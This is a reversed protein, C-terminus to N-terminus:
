PSEGEPPPPTPPVDTVQPPQSPANEPTPPPSRGGVPPVPAGSPPTEPTGEEEGAEAAAAAPREPLIPYARGTHSYGVSGDESVVRETGVALGGAAGSVTPIVDIGQPGYLSDALAPDTMRPVAFTAGPATLVGTRVIIGLKALSNVVADHDMSGLVLYADNVECDRVLFVGLADAETADVGYLLISSIAAPTTAVTHKVAGAGADFVGQMLTGPPLYRDTQQVTAAARSRQGTAESALMGLNRALEQIMPM